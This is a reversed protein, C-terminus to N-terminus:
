IRCGSPLSFQKCRGEGQCVPAGLNWPTLIIPLNGGGGQEQGRGQRRVRIGLVQLLLFPMDTKADRAARKILAWVFAWCPCSRHSQRSQEWVGRCFRWVMWPDSWYHMVVRQSGWTVAKTPPDACLNCCFVVVWKVGLQRAKRRPSTGWTEWFTQAGRLLPFHASPCLSSPWGRRAASPGGVWLDLCGASVCM